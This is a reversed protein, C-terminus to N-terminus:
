TSQQYALKFVEDALVHVEGTIETLVWDGPNVRLRDAGREIIVHPGREDVWVSYGMFMDGTKRAGLNPLETLTEYVFQEAEVKLTKRLFKM